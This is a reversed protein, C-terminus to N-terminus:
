SKQVDTLLQLLMNNWRKYVSQTPGLLCERTWLWCCFCQFFHSNHGFNVIFIISLREQTKITLKSSIECEKKTRKNNVKFLYIIIPTTKRTCINNGLTQLHASAKNGMMWFQLQIEWYNFKRFIKSCTWIWSRKMFFTRSKWGDQGSHHWKNVNEWWSIKCFLKKSEKNKVHTIILYREAVAVIEVFKNRTRPIVGLQAFVIHFCPCLNYLFGEAFYPGKYNM